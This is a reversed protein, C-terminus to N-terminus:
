TECVTSEDRQNDILSVWDPVRDSKLYNEKTLCRLPLDVSGFIAGGLWATYNPKSPATHFMFTQIKLKESYHSSKVLTLLESKLRSAFGKAMATGGILLINEALTRRTDIPCQIIANLIMTPISLNDNDREWLVEFAEERIEGPINISKVGPYKIAPPPKPADATGLKASRELTTVFCTRVKIDEVLKETIDVNPYIERLSKMLYRNFFYSNIFCWNFIFCKVLEHVVQGGLPLAQWAKLIPEGEYIPILTAEKYGIDLVLASNVGLTSITALHTSLLMLSGIEFHRFLVKALTDRFQTPVLLSELIVIRADKPSIVVHKFFLAHLFEVLLQYLDETDKYDYIRRLKKTDPCKIETRIIGRPTPEGAYGFKTYASGIDLIVMQKDSFFRIGEYTRLM